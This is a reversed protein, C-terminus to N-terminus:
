CDNVKASKEIEEHESKYEKLIIFVGSSLLIYLYHMHHFKLTWM